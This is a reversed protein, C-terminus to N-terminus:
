KVASMIEEKALFEEVMMVDEKSGVYIPIRQHLNEPQIDLIRNKGDSSKGGAAEV